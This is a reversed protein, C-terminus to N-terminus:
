KVYIFFIFNLPTESKGDLINPYKYINIKPYTYKKYLYSGKREKGKLRELCADMFVKLESGIGLDRRIELICPDM